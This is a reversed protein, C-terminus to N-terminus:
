FKEDNDNFYSTYGYTQMRDATIKEVADADANTITEKYTDNTDTGDKKLDAQKWPESALIFPRTAQAARSIAAADFPINLFATITELEKGPDKVLDEYRLSYVTGPSQEKFREVNQQIHNWHAALRSVPTEKNYPFNRKRSYVAPVPHRVIHLIQVAPYFMAIRDLFNAHYPTKELWRFSAPFSNKGPQPRLFYAVICEFLTKSTCKKEETLRYIVGKEEEDFQFEMKERIKEFVNDLCAPLIHGDGDVSIEKEIVNFYHTEPLSYIGTQTALLGQLLTTGSRPYGVIFVPDQPLTIDKFHIGTM